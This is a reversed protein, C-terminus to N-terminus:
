SRRLPVGGASPETITCTGSPRQNLRRDHQLAWLSHPLGSLVQLESLLIKLYGPVEHTLQGRSKEGSKQGRGEEDKTIKVM